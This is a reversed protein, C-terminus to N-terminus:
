VVSKRDGISSGEQLTDVISLANREIYLNNSLGREGKVYLNTEADKIGNEYNESIFVMRAFTFSTARAYFGAGLKGTPVGNGTITTDYVYISGNNSYVAGGDTSYNGEIVVGNLRTSGSGTIFMASGNSATGFSFNSDFINLAEAGSSYIAGGQSATSNVINIERLIPLACTQVGTM